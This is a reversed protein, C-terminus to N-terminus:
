TPATSYSAAWPTLRRSVCGPTTPSWLGGGIAHMGHLGSLDTLAENYQITVNRRTAILGTFGTVRELVPHKLIVLTRSVKVV